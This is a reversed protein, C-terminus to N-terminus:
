RSCDTAFAPRTRLRKSGSSLLGEPLEDRLLSIARAAGCPIDLAVFSSGRKIPESAFQTSNDSFFKAVNLRLLKRVHALPL